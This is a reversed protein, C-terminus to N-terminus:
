FIFAIVDLKWKGDIKELVRIEEGITTKGNVLAKERFTAWAHNGSIKINWDSREIFQYTDDEGNMWEQVLTKINDYGIVHGRNGDSLGYIFAMKPSQTVTAEWVDMSKQEYAMTE